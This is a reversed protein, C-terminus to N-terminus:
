HPEPRGRSNKAAPLAQYIKCASETGVRNLLVAALRTGSRCHPMIVAARRLLERSHRHRGLLEGGIHAASQRFLWNPGALGRRQAGREVTRSSIKRQEGFYGMADLQT